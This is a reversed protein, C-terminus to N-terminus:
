PQIRGPGGRSERLELLIGGFSRPHIFVVRSGEAGEQPSDSLLQLGGKGLERMAAEIDEVELTLHHVGEGREALFRALPSNEGAPSVLEVAPGEPFRLQALRVGREPLEEVPGSEAGFLSTWRAVSKELDRVAVGLHHIGLIKM